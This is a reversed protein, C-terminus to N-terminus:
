PQSPTQGTRAADLFLDTYSRPCEDSLGCTAAFIRIVPLAARAAERTPALHEIEVFIDPSFHVRVVCIALSLGNFITRSRQCQKRYALRQRFGLHTLMAAMVTAEGVATELEEKSATAPDFPPNKYTLTVNGDTERLRLERGSAYFTGDPSDFYVDRCLIDPLREGPPRFTAPARYKIEAEYM